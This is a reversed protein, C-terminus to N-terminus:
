RPFRAAVRARMRSRGSRQRPAQQERDQVPVVGVDIRRCVRKSKGCQREAEVDDDPEGAEEIEAIGRKERDAGVGVADGARKLQLRLPRAEPLREAPEVEDGAHRSGAAIDDM